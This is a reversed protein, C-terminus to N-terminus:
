IYTASVLTIFPLLTAFNNTAIFINTTNFIIYTNSASINSNYPSTRIAINDAVPSFVPTYSMTYTPSPYFLAQVQSNKSM